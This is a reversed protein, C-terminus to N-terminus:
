PAIVVCVLLLVIAATHWLSSSLRRRPPSRRVFLAYIGVSFTTAAIPMFLFVADSVGARYLIPGSILVLVARGYPAPVNARARWAGM